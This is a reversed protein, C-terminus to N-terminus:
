QETRATETGTGPVAVKPAEFRFYTMGRLDLWVHHPANVLRLLVHECAACRVVLGPGRCTYVRKRLDGSREVPRV